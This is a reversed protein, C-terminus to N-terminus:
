DDSALPARNVPAGAARLRDAIRVLDDAVDAPEIDAIKTIADYCLDAVSMKRTWATQTFHIWDTAPLPLSILTPPLKEMHIGSIRRLASILPENQKEVANVLSRCESAPINEKIIFIALLWQDSESSLKAIEGAHSLSLEDSDVKWQIGTPLSAIKHIARLNRESLGDPLPIALYRKFTKLLISISQALESKSKASHNRLIDLADDHNM